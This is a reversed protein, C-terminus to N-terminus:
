YKVAIANITVASPVYRPTGCVGRYVSGILCPVGVVAYGQRMALGPCPWRRGGGGFAPAHTPTKRKRFCDNPCM